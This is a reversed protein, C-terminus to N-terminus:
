GGGSATNGIRNFFGAEKENKKEPFKTMILKPPLALYFM